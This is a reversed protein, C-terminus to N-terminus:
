FYNININFRGKDNTTSTSSHRTRPNFLLARNAVSEIRTGDELQTFGDCTNFSFLCGKHDYPYDLHPEHIEVKGTRPYFNMKMRVLAKMRLQEWFGRFHKYHESYIYNVQMNFLQHTLYGTLDKTVADPSTRGRWGASDKHFSNIEANWYWAIDESMVIDRMREFEEKKFFNDIVEHEIKM